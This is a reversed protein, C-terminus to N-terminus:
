SPSIKQQSIRKLAQKHIDAMYNCYDQTFCKTDCKIFQDLKKEHHQILRSEKIELELKKEKNRNARKEAKNKKLLLDIDAYDPHNKIKLVIKKEENNPADMKPDKNYQQIIYNITASTVIPVIIKIAKWYPSSEKSPTTHMVHIPNEKNGLVDKIVTEVVEEMGYCQKGFTTLFIISLLISKKNKITSLSLM